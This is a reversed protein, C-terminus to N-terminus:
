WHYQRDSRCLIDSIVNCCSYFLSNNRFKFSAFTIAADGTDQTNRNTSYSENHPLPLFWPGCFVHHSRSSRSFNRFYIASLHHPCNPIIRKDRCSSRASRLLYPVFTQLLVILLSSWPCSRCNRLWRLVGTNFSVCRFGPSSIAFVWKFLSSPKKLCIKHDSSHLIQSKPRSLAAAWTQRFFPVACSLSLIMDVTFCPPPFM